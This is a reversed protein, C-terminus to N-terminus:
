RVQRSGGPRTPRPHTVDRTVRWRRVDNDETLLGIACLTGAWATMQDRVDQPDAHWLAALMEAARDLHGNHQNLAIWMATAAPECDVLRGTEACFLELHGSAQMRQTLGASTHM